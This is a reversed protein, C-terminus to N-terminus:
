NGHEELNINPNTNTTIPNNTTITITTSTGEAPKTITAKTTGCSTLGFITAVIVALATIITKISDKIKQQQKESLNEWYKNNYKM